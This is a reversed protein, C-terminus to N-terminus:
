WVAKNSGTLKQEVVAATALCPLLTLRFTGKLEGKLALSRLQSTYLRVSYPMIPIRLFRRFTLQEGGFEAVSRVFEPLSLGATRYYEVYDSVIGLFTATGKWIGAAQTSSRLYFYDIASNELLQATDAVDCLRLYFHRYMRQLTSLIVRDEPAPVWFFHAGFPLLRRRAILSNGISVHEGTQGLRGVHFEILERLGPIIFNWKNALRDGWSRPALSANFYQKMVRIVDGAQASTFLDLDSGLDPWHDLSKVVMVNCGETELTGCIETLFSLAAEVRDHERKIAHAAWGALERNDTALAMLQFPQLARILVHHADALALMETAEEFTLNVIGSLDGPVNPDLENKASFLLRSLIILSKSAGPPYTTGPELRANATPSPLASM